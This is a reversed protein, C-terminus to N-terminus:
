DLQGRSEFTPIRRLLEALAKRRAPNFLSRDEISRYIIIERAMKFAGWLHRGVPWQSGDYPYRIM